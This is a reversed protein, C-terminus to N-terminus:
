SPFREKSDLEFITHWSQSRFLRSYYVCKKKKRKKLIEGTERNISSRIREDNTRKIVGYACYVIWFINKIIYRYLEGTKLPLIKYFLILVTLFKHLHSLFVFILNINENKFQFCRENHLKFSAM